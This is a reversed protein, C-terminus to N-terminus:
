PPAGSMVEIPTRITLHDDVVIQLRHPPAPAKFAPEPAVARMGRESTTPRAWLGVGVGMVCAGAVGALLIPPAARGRRKAPRSGSSDFSDTTM